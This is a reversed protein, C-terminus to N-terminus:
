VVAENRNKEMDRKILEVCNAFAELANLSYRHKAEPTKIFNNWLNLDKIVITDKAEALEFPIRSEMDSKLWTVQYGGQVDSVVKCAHLHVILYTGISLKMLLM